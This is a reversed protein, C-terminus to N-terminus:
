DYFATSVLRREEETQEGSRPAVLEADFWKIRDHLHPPSRLRAVAVQLRWLERRQEISAGQLAMIGASCRVQEIRLLVLLFALFGMLALLVM